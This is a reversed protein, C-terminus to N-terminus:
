GARASWDIENGVPQVAEEVLRPVGVFQSARDLQQNAVRRQSASHALRTSATNESAVPGRHAVLEEGAVRLDYSRRFNLTLSSTEQLRSLNAGRQCRAGRRRFVSSANTAGSDSGLWPPNGTGSFEAPVRAGCGAALSLILGGRNDPVRYRPRSPIHDHTSWRM